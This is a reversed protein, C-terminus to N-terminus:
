FKIKQTIKENISKLNLELECIRKELSSYSEYLARIYEADPSRRQIIGDKIFFSELEYRKGNMFVIPSCRGEPLERVNTKCIGRIVPATSAGIALTASIPEDFIIRVEDGGDDKVDTCEYAKSRMKYVIIKM